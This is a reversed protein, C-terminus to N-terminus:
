FDMEVFITNEVTYLWMYGSGYGQLPVKYYCTTTAAACALRVNL